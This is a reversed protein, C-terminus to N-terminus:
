ADVEVPEAAETAVIGRQQAEALLEAIRDLLTAAEVRDPPNAALAADYEDFLSVVEALLEEATLDAGPAPDPEDPQGPDDPDAPEPPTLIVGALMESFDEGEFLKGLADNLDSGIAIQEGEGVTAIM